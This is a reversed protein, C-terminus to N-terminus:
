ISSKGASSGKQFHLQKLSNHGLPPMYPKVNSPRGESKVHMEDIKKETVISDMIM